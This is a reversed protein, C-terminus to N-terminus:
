KKGAPPQWLYMPQGPQLRSRGGSLGLDLTPGSAVRAVLESFSLVREYRVLHVNKAGTKKKLRSIADDRYGISDVLGLEKAKKSTFVRGDAIKEVEKPKMGRGEAVIDVFRRYMGDVLNQFVEREAEEQEKSQEVFPSGMDKFKGSVVPNSKVGLKDMLGTADYLAMMVGISGTVATPHAVIEDAGASVYYAGSAAVSQFCAVVPDGTKKRYETLEQHMIDSATVGGGGSNVSLLVARVKDDERAKELRARFLPAPTSDDGMSSTTIFGRLPVQVVKPQGKEGRLTVETFRYQKGAMGGKDFASAAGTVLFLGLV